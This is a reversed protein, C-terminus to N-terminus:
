DSGTAHVLSWVSEPVLRSERLVVLLESDLVGLSEIVAGTAVELLPPLEHVSGDDMPAVGTVEDVALAVVRNEIMLTVLRGASSATSGLLRAVDVVPVARGRIISVGVVFDPATALPEYPLVRMTEVVHEIPLACRRNGVRCVLYRGVSEDLERTAELVTTM